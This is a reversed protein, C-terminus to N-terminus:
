DIPSSPVEMLPPPMFIFEFFVKSKTVAHTIKKKKAAVTTVFVIIIAIIQGLEHVKNFRLM